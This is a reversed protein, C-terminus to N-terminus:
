PREASLHEAGSASLSLPCLPKNAAPIGTWVLSKRQPGKPEAPPAYRRPRVGRDTFVFRM